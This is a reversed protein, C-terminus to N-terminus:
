KNIKLNKVGKYSILGQDMNIFKYQNTNFIYENNNKEFSTVLYKGNYESLIVYEKDDIMIFEYKTKQEITSTSQSITGMITIYLCTGFSLFFIFCVFKKSKMKKGCGDIDDFFRVIALCFLLLLLNVLSKYSTIFTGIEEPIFNNNSIIMNLFELIVKYLFIGCLFIFGIRLISNFFKSSILCYKKIILPVLCIAIIVFILFIWYLKESLNSNFYLKPIGYFIECHMQYIFANYVGQFLNYCFTLIATISAICAIKKEGIKKIFKEVSEKLSTM